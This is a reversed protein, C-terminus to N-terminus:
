YISYTNIGLITDGKWRRSTGCSNIKKIHWSTKDIKRQRLGLIRKSWEHMYREGSSNM